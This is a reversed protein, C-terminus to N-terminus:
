TPPEGSRLGIVYGADSADLLAEAVRQVIQDFRRGDCVPFDESLLQHARQTFPHLRFARDAGPGNSPTDSPSVPSEVTGLTVAVPIEEESLQNANEVM